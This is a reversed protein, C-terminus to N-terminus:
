GAKRSKTDSADLWSVSHMHQRWRSWDTAELTSPTLWGWPVGMLAAIFRPNLDAKPSGDNGAPTIMQPRRGRVALDTLTVDASGQKGGSAKADSATPTPWATVADDFNRRGDALRSLAVDRSPVGRRNDGLKATPTPWMKVQVTLSTPVTRGGLREKMAM